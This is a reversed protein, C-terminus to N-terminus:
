GLTESETIESIQGHTMFKENTPPHVDSAIGSMFRCLIDKGLNHTYKSPMQEYRVHSGFLGVGMEFIEGLAEQNWRCCSLSVSRDRAGM